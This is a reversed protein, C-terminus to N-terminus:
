EGACEKAPQTTPQEEDKRNDLRIMISSDEKTLDHRFYGGNCEYFSGSFIQADKPSDSIGKVANKEFETEPTLVLQTIGDQIYIATKM